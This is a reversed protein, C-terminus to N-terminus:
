LYNTAMNTSVSIGSVVDSFKLTDVGWVHKGEALVLVNNLCKGKPINCKLDQQKLIFGM